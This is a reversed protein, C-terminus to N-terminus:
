SRVKSAAYWVLGPRPRTASVSAVNVITSPIKHSLMHPVVVSISMYISKLNVTFCKDFDAETVELTPKNSYTAGANNIITTVNGLQEKATKLMGEWAERKTADGVFKAARGGKSKIQAVVADAGKENLDAVLVSAGHSAFMLSTARGFGSAAGTIIAVRDALKAEAM